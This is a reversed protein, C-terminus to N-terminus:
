KNRRKLISDIIYAEERDNIELSKNKPMEYFSHNSNIEYRTKKEVLPLFNPKDGYVKNTSVLIFVSKYCYKKALYLLNLTGNANINFDTLPEKAAWDHSPQAACHIICKIKNNYKRFIKELNKLNRIDMNFHQFNKIKKKLKKSMNKTSASRGFFYSRCDNDIGLIKFKKKSFFSSTESGVLGSSGTVLAYKM